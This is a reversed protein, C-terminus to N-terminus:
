AHGLATLLGPEVFPQPCCADELGAADGGVCALVSADGDIAHAELRAMVDFGALDDAHALRRYGIGELDQCAYFLAYSCLEYRLDILVDRVTLLILEKLHATDASRRWISSKVSAAINPQSSPSSHSSSSSM